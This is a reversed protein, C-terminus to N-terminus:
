GPFMTDVLLRNLVYADDENNHRAIVLLTILVIRDRRKKVLEISVQVLKVKLMMADISGTRPVGHIVCYKM